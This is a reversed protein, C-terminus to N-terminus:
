GKKDAKVTDETADAGHPFAGTEPDLGQRLSRRHWCERGTLVYGAANMWQIYDAFLAHYAADADAYKDETYELDLFHETTGRRRLAQRAEEVTVRAADRRASSRRLKARWPATDPQYGTSDVLAALETLDTPEVFTTAENLADIHSM